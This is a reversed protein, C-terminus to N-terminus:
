NQTCHLFGLLLSSSHIYYHTFHNLSQLSNKVAVGRGVWLEFTVKVFVATYPSLNPVVVGFRYGSSRLEVGCDEGVMVHRTSPCSERNPIWRESDWLSYM